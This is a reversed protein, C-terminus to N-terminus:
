DKLFAVDKSANGARAVKPVARRHRVSGHYIPMEIIEHM